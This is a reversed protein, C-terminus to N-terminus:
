GIRVVVIRAAATFQAAKGEAASGFSSRDENYGFGRVTVVKDESGSRLTAAASGTLESYGARSIAAGMITGGDATGGEDTPMRLSLQPMTDTTPAVYDAHDANVRDFVATTTVQYLGGAPLTFETLETANTAYSGGIKDIAKPMVQVSFGSGLELADKVDGALKERSVIGNALSSWYVGGNPVARLYDAWPGYTDNQGVSGDIIAASNVSNPAAIAQRVAGAQDPNVPAATAGSASALLSAGALVSAAITTTFKRM